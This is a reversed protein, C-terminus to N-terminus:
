LGHLCCSYLAWEWIVHQGQSTVEKKLSFAQLKTDYLCLTIHEPTLSPVPQFSVESVGLYVELDEPGEEKRGGYMLDLTESGAKRLTM